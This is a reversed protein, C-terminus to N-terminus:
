MLLGSVILWVGAYLLWFIGAVYAVLAESTQGKEHLARREVFVLWFGIILIFVTAIPDWREVWANFVGIPAM